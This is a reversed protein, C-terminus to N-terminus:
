KIDGFPSKDSESYEVTYVTGAIKWGDETKLLNFVDVGTHSFEGNIHFDYKTWVVALNGHVEVDPDFMRELYDVEQTKLNETFESHPIFRISRGSSDERISAFQGEALLVSEALGADKNSMADFFSQVAKLIEKEESGSNECGFCVCLASLVFTIIIIRCHLYKM